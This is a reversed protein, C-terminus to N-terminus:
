PTYIIDASPWRNWASGTLSEMSLHVQLHSSTPHSLSLAALINPLRQINGPHGFHTKIKKELTQSMKRSHWPIM